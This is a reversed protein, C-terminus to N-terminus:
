LMKQNSYIRLERFEGLVQVRFDLSCSSFRPFVVRFGLGQACSTKSCILCNFIGSYSTIRLVEWGGLIVAM